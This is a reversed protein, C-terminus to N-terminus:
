EKEGAERLDKRLVHSERFDVKEPALDVPGIRLPKSCANWPVLLTPSDLVEKRIRPTLHHLGAVDRFSERIAFENLNGVLAPCHDLPVPDLDIDM